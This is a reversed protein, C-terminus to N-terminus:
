FSSMVQQLLMQEKTPEEDPNLLAKPDLVAIELLADTQQPVAEPLITRIAEQFVQAAFYRVVNASDYRNKLRSNFAQTINLGASELSALAAALNSKDANRIAEFGKTAEDSIGAEVNLWDFVKQLGVNNFLKTVDRLISASSAPDYLFANGRLNPDHSMADYIQGLITHLNSVTVESSIVARLDDMTGDTLNGTPLAVWAFFIKDDSGMGQAAVHSLDSAYSRWVMDRYRSQIASAMASYRPKDKKKMLADVWCLNANSSYRIQMSSWVNGIIGDGNPTAAPNSDTFKDWDVVWTDFDAHNPNPSGDGFESSFYTRVIPRYQLAFDYRNMSVRQDHLEWGFDVSDIEFQNVGKAAGSIGLSLAAYRRVANNGVELDEDKGGAQFLHVRGSETDVFTEQSFATNIDEYTSRYHPISVEIKANRKIGHTLTATRV